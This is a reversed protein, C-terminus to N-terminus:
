VKIFSICSVTCRNVELVKYATLSPARYFSVVERGHVNRITEALVIFKKFTKEADFSSPFSICLQSFFLNYGTLYLSKQLIYIYIYILVYLVYTSRGRKRKYFIHLSLVTSEISTVETLNLSNFTGPKSDRCLQVM